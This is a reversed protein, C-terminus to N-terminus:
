EFKIFHDIPFAIGHNSLITDLIIEAEDFKYKLICGVYGKYCNLKSDKLYVIIIRDGRKYFEHKKKICNDKSSDKNSDKSNDKNDKVKNNLDDKLNDKVKDNLNDKIKDNLNDKTIGKKKIFDFFDM